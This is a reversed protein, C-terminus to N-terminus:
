WLGFVCARSDDLCERARGGGPPAALGRTCVAEINHTRISCSAGYYNCSLAATAPRRQRAAAALAARSRTSAPATRRWSAVHLPKELEAEGGIWFDPKGGHRLRRAACSETVDAGMEM